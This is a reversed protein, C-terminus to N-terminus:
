VGALERLRRHADNVIQMAETSGGRDPHYDLALQRYWRAIVSSWDAPPAARRQSSGARGGRSQREQLEEEIAERLELYIGDCERLVWRLYSTPVARLPEGRYKGFPMRGM